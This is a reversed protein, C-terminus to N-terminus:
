ASVERAGSRVEEERRLTRGPRAREGPPGQEEKEDPLPWRAAPDEWPVPEDPHERLAASGDRQASWPM